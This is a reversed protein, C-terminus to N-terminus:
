KTWARVATTMSERAVRTIIPRSVLGLGFPVPRSLTISECTVVVGDRTATFRWHSQMRWLFGRSEALSVRRERPTGADHLEEIRTSVSTSDIRSGDVQRHRVRHWTDYTATVLMSRTLRLYVDHGGESWDAVKLALVDRPTPHREPHRLREAIADLSVGRLLVSGQWHELTADDVEAGALRRGTVHAEGRALAAIVATGKPDDDTAWAPGGRTRDAERAKTLAAAYRDWSQLAARSPGDARAMAPFVLVILVLAATIERRPLAGEGSLDRSRSATSPGSPTRDRGVRFVFRDALWYNAVASSAVAIVQAVIPPVVGSLAAVVGLGVVISTGGAGLHARWLSRPWPITGARDKWAWTRHLAHNNVIAAEIALWTALLPAVGSALLATAVGMQVVFGLAGIAVFRSARTGIV